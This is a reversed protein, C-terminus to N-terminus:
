RTRLAAIIASAFGQADALAPQQKPMSVKLRVLNGGVGGACVLAEVPQRGYTGELAACTFASDLPFRRVERLHRARDRGQVAEHLEAQFAASAAPSDPGDPLDAGVPALKVAAAARQRSAATAYAVEQGTAPPRAPLTQGRLFGAAQAPLRAAADQLSLRPAPAVAALTSAAETGDPQVCAALALLAALCGGRSAPAM